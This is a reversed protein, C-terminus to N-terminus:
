RQLFDGFFDEASLLYQATWRSTIDRDKTRQILAALGLSQKPRAARLFDSFVRFSSRWSIINRADSTQKGRNHPRYHPIYM